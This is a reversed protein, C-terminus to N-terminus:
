DLAGEAREEQPELFLALPLIVPLLWCSSATYVLTYMWQTLRM